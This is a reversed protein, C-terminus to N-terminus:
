LENKIKGLWSLVQNLSYESTFSLILRYETDMKKVLQLSKIANGELEENIREVDQMKISLGGKL